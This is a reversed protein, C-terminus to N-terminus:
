IAQETNPETRPATKNQEKLDDQLQKLGQDLAKGLEDIGQSLAKDVGKLSEQMFGNLENVVAGMAGSVMSGMTKQVDVRWDHEVRVLVTRVPIKIEGNNGGYLVTAVEASNDTVKVEGTEFRQANIKDSKVFKLYEASEWTALQKAKEMDKNQIATWFADTVAVANQSESSFLCATLLPSLFILLFFIRYKM